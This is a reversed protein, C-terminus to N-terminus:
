TLKLTSLSGKFKSAMEERILSLPSERIRRFKATSFM